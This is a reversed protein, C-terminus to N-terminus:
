DQSSLWDRLYSYPDSNDAAKLFVERVALWDEGTAAFVQEFIDLDLNYRQIGLMRANNDPIDQVWDYRDPRNMLPQVEQAFRDRGAQFVIGRGEIKQEASLDSAYFAGLENFVTLMFDTYRDVDEFRDIANQIIEPQDPYRDTMFRLAGARGYFTALSENFSTDDKRWITSHLLEHFITDTIALESRKLIPSFVINPIFGIGSYAEIEYKFVDLGQARLENFKADALNSDFFGLYPVTGVIPFWWTRPELVDKRAASVNYAVPQGKSDFFTTYNNAVNLGMVDRAYNRVDQILKLKTIQEETLQGSVIAKDIPVSKVILNFQGAAAPLLYAFDIGCGSALMTAVLLIIIRVIGVVSRKSQRKKNKCTFMNKLLYLM